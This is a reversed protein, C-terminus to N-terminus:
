LSESLVLYCTRDTLSNVVREVDLDRVRVGIDFEFRWSSTRDKTGSKSNFNRNRVDLLRHLFKL